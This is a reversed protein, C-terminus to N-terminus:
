SKTSLPPRGGGIGGAFAQIISCWQEAVAGTATVACDALNRRQTALMVFDLATGRVENV